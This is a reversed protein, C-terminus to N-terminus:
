DGRKCLAKIELATFQQNSSLSYAEKCEGEKYIGYVGFAVIMGFFVLIFVGILAAIALDYSLKFKEPTM